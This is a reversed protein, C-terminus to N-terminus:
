LLLLMKQQKQRKKKLFLPLAILCTSFSGCRALFATREITVILVTIRPSNDAKLLEMNQNECSIYLLAHVLLLVM